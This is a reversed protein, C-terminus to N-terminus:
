GARVVPAPVAKMKAVPLRERPSQDRLQQTLSSRGKLPKRDKEAVRDRVVDEAEAGQQADPVGPVQQAEPIPAAAPVQVQAPAAQQAPADGVSFRFMSEAENGSSDRAIVKIQLDGTFGAPPKGEFTGTTGNFNLWPMAAM